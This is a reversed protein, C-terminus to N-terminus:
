STTKLPLVVTPVFALKILPPLTVKALVVLKLPEAKKLLAPVRSALPVIM